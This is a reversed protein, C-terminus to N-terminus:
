YYAGVLPAIVYRKVGMTEGEDPAWRSKRHLKSFFLANRRLRPGVVIDELSYVTDQSSVSIISSLLLLFSILLGKM